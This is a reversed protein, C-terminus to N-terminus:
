GSIQVAFASTVAAFDAELVPQTMYVSFLSTMSLVEIDVTNIVTYHIGAVFNSSFQTTLALHFEAHFNQAVVISSDSVLTIQYFLQTATQFTARCFSFYLINLVTNPVTCYM